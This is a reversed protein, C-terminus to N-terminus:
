LSPQTNGKRFSSSCQDIDSQRSVRIYIVWQEALKNARQTYHATYYRSMVSM